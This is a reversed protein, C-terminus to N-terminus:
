DGRQRCEHPQLAPDGRASARRQHVHGQQRLRAKRGPAKDHHQHEGGGAGHKKAIGQQHLGTEAAIRQRGPQDERWGAGPEDGARHGRGPQNGPIPRPRDRQGRQQVAARRSGQHQVRFKRAGIQVRPREQGRQHPQARRLARDVRRQHVQRHSQDLVAVRAHGGAHYRGQLLHARRKAYRGRAHQIATRQLGMRIRALGFAM